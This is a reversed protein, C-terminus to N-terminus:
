NKYNLLGIKKQWQLAFRIRTQLMIVEALMALFKVVNSLMKHTGELKAVCYQRASRSIMAAKNKTTPPAPEPSRHVNLATPVRRLDM